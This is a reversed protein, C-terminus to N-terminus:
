KTSCRIKFILKVKFSLIKFKCHTLKGEGLIEIEIIKDIGVEGETAIVEVTVEAIVEVTVEVIVEVTVEVIMEKLMNLGFEALCYVFKMKFINM